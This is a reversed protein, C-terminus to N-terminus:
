RPPLFPIQLSEPAVVAWRSSVLTVDAGTEPKVARRIIVEPARDTRVTAGRGECLREAIGRVMEMVERGPDALKALSLTDFESHVDIFVDNRM